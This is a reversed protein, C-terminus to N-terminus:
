WFKSICQGERQSETGLSFPLYPLYFSFTSFRLFYRKRARTLPFHIDHTIIIHKVSKRYNAYDMAVSALTELSLTLIATYFFTKTNNYKKKMHVTLSIFWICKNNHGRTLNHFTSSISHLSLNNTPHPLLYPCIIFMYDNINSPDSTYVIATPWLAMLVNKSIQGKNKTIQKIM